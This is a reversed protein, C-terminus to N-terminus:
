SPLLGHARCFTLVSSPGAPAWEELWFRLLAVKLPSSSSLWAVYDFGKGGRRRDPSSAIIMPLGKREVIWFRPLASQSDLALNLTAELDRQQVKIKCEDALAEALFACVRRVDGAELARMRYPYFTATEATEPM